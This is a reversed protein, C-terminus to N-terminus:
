KRSRMSQIMKETFDKMDKGAKLISDVPSNISQRSHSSNLNQKRQIPAVELSKRVERSTLLDIPQFDSGYLIFKFTNSKLDRQWHVGNAKSLENTYAQKTIESTDLSKKLQSKYGQTGLWSNYDSESIIGKEFAEAITDPNVCFNTM